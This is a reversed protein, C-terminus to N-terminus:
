LMSLVLSPFRRSQRESSSALVFWEANTPERSHERRGGGSSGRGPEGSRVKGLMGEPVSAIHIGYQRVAPCLIALLLSCLTVVFGTDNQRARRGPSIALPIGSLVKQCVSLFCGVAQAQKSGKPAVLSRARKECAPPDLRSLVFSAPVVGVPADSSRSPM